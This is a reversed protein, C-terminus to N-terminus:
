AIVRVEPELSIGYAEEVSGRIRESFALIDRGAAGGLNVIVLAQRDHVAVRGFRSGKWGCKDILWGAALKFRGDAQPYRPMDPFRAILKELVGKEVVPNKFFSGANGMVAPDPLKSKRLGIIAQRVNALCIDGLAAVADRVGPYDLVFRPQRSLRFVV